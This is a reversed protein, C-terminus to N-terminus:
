NVLDNHISSRNFWVSVAYLESNDSSNNEIEIRMWNGLLKEGSVSDQLLCAIRDGVSVSGAGSTQISRYGTISAVQLNVANVSGGSLVAITSGLPIPLNHVDTNIVLSQDPSATASVVTGIGLFVLSNIDTPIESYYMREKKALSTSLVLPTQQDQTFCRFSWPTTSELGIAEFNKVMSSNFSAVVSIRSPYTTGYFRCVPASPTHIFMSGNKFTFLSGNIESMAEPMYSYRTTWVRDDISYAVTQNTFSFNGSIKQVSVIYEKTRPDIGGYIKFNQDGLSNVQEFLKQFFSDMGQESILEIGDNSIRIIKGNRHDAFFVKGYYTAVSEPHNGVGFDGAYFSQQGVFNNSITVGAQGDAYEIVNRSVPMVSCKTEQIVIVSDSNSAIYKIAGHEAQLDAFNADSLNFSSLGLISTDLAYPDSWTMSSKRFVQKIDKSVSNARGTSIFKSRIFDSVSNDEVYQTEFYPLLSSKNPSGNIIPNMKIRRPRFYVDGSFTDVVADQSNLIQQVRYTGAPIATDFSFFKNPEYESPVTIDVTTLPSENTVVRLVDGRRVDVAISCQRINLIPVVQVTLFNQPLNLLPSFTFDRQGRHRWQQSTQDFVVPYAQSIEYYVRNETSRSPRFIEVIVNRGWQDTEAAIDSASYGSHGADKLVLFFGSKRADSVGASPFLIEDQSGFSELGIIDMELNENLRSGLSERSLIRLRDGEVFSYDFVAGTSDSYSDEKGQLHRLSLYIRRDFSNENAETTFAEAVSYAYTFSYSSYPSYVLQWSRAWSPPNSSIRVSASCRGSFLSAFPLPTSSGIENVAGSRGRSDYYVVGFYQEENRKFSASQGSFVATNNINFYNFVNQPVSSVGKDITAALIFTNQFPKIIRISVRNVRFRMQLINSAFQNFFVEVVASGTSRYNTNSVEWPSSNTVTANYLGAISQSLSTALQSRNQYPPVSISRTIISEIRELEFYPRIAAPPSEDTWDENIRSSCRLLIDFFLDIPESSSSPLSSLNINIDFGDVTPTGINIPSSDDPTVPITSVSDLSYNFGISGSVNVNDYSERNGGFLLRNAVISQAESSLPVNDFLSRSVREQMFQRVENNFFRVTETTNLISRVNNIEKVLFFAQTGAESAYIAIKEVDGLSRKVSIDIANFANAYDEATIRDSLMSSNLALTSYPSLTSREGDEYIYQYSFLFYRNKLRNFSVSEDRIFRVVPPELPPQKATTLSLLREEEAYNYLIPSQNEDLEAVSKYPYSASSLAKTVNIKKPDTESDNLYLLTDGNEKVIADMKVWSDAKFGWVSDRDVLRVQNQSVGYWYISHNNNSNYVAFLIENKERNICSGVVKNTGAPLASGSAVAIATNGWARKIVGANGEDDSSVTINLADTMETTKVLLFDDDSNLSRPIIRDIAM